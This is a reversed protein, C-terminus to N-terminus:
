AAAVVAELESLSRISRPDGAPPGDRRLWRAQFGAREAGVVDETLSDGVHLLAWPGLGFRAAAAHFIQVDPKPAPGEVSPLIWEFADALGVGRLVAHLREDWNSVVALRIGQRQLSALCPRVDPYVHWVDPEMFRTWLRDFAVGMREPALRGELVRSVLHAWAERSHDFAGRESWARRFGEDLDAASLTALGAQHLTDAYVAGVSPCPELLTGGADLTVGAIRSM